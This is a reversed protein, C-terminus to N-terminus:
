QKAPEENTDDYVAFEIKHAGEPPTFTFANDALQPALDWTMTSIYQPQGTELKSTIVLKRPLPTDDDEIWLQWDVEEQKFAYHKCPTGNVRSVAIFYAAKIDETRAKKTSWWFLDRLPIEVDYRDQAIDLLQTLNDPAKFTGYYKQPLSYITFTSGDYYYENDRGIEEIKSVVKLRDPLRTTYETTGTVMIKQGTLLVEDMSMESTVIFSTLSNLYTGMGNLAAMAEPEISSEDKAEAESLQEDARCGAALFHVFPVSLLMIGICKRWRSTM